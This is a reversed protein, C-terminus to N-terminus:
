DNRDGMVRTHEEYFNFAKRKKFSQKHSGNSEGRRSGMRETGIM